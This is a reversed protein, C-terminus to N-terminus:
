SKPDAAKNIHVQASSHRDAQAINSGVASQIHMQGQPLSKLEKLLAQVARQIEPDGDVRAATIEEDLTLKRGESDPRVELEEVAKVVKSGGGLKRQLLGKLSTYADVLLNEGGGVLLEDALKAQGLVLDRPPYAPAARADCVAKPQESQGLDDPLRQRATLEAFPM